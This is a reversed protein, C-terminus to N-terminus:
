LRVSKRAPSDTERKHGGPQACRHVLNKIRQLNTWRDDRLKRGNYALFATDVLDAATMNGRVARPNIEAGALRPRSIKAM